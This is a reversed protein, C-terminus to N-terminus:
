GARLVNGSGQGLRDAHGVGAAVHHHVRERADLEGVLADGPEGVVDGGDALDDAGLHREGRVVVAVDVHVGADAQGPGHLLVVEGPHLVHHRPLEALQHLLDPVGDVDRDEGALVDVQLLVEVLEDVHAGHVHDVGVEGREPPRSSVFFIPSKAMSCPTAMAMCKAPVGTDNMALRCQAAAVSFKTERSCWETSTGHHSSM